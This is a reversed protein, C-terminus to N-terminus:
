QWELKEYSGNKISDMVIDPALFYELLSFVTKSLVPLDAKLRDYDIHSLMKFNFLNKYLKEDMVFGHSGDFVKREGHFKFVCISHLYGKAGQLTEEQRNYFGTQIQPRFESLKNTFLYAALHCRQNKVYVSPDILKKPDAFLGEGFECSLLHQCKQHNLSVNVPNKILRLRDFQTLADSPIMKISSKKLIPSKLDISNISKLFRVIEYKLSPVDQEEYEETLKPELENREDLFDRVDSITCNTLDIDNTNEDYFM